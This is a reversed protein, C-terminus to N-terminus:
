RHPEPGQVARRRAGVLGAAGLAILGSALLVLSTSRGTPPLVDSPDPLAISTTTTNTTPVSMEIPWIEVTTDATLEIVDRPDFGFTRPATTSPTFLLWYEGAPLEYVVCAPLETCPAPGEVTAPFSNPDDPDSIPAENYLEVLIDGPEFQDAHFLVTLEFTEPLTSTTADSTTPSSDVPVSTPPSASITGSWSGLWGILLVAFAFRPAASLRM